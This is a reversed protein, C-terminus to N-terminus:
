HPNIGGVAAKKIAWAVANLELAADYVYQPKSGGVAYNGYLKKQPVGSKYYAPYSLNSSNNAAGTSDGFYFFNKKENYWVISYEPDVDTHGFANYATCVQVSNPPLETLIVSNETTNDEGWYKGGLYGFPGNIIPDNPLQNILYDNDDGISNVEEYQNVATQVNFIDKLLLNTADVQDDAVGYILVGGNNVYKALATVVESNAKAGYAFYLVIDPTNGNNLNNAATSVNATNWKKTFNEIKVKGNPGFNDKNALADTRASADWSWELNGIIGYTMAQLVVPLVTSCTTNGSLSNTEITVPIDKNVTPTGQGTLEVTNTGTTAFVGQAKFMVGYDSKGTIFYSGVASVQINLIIKQNTLATGKVYSDGSLSITGCNVEYVAVSAQVNVLIPNSSCDVAKGNGSLSVTDTQAQAPTGKGQAYITYTGPSLFTGSDTFYYGNTTTGVISYTGKKTVTVTIKLLESATLERGEIYSGEVVVTSCDVDFDAEGMQGCVSQWASDTRSYYNYCDEDINYVLLSNARSKDSNVDIKDREAESMRPIMIGKPITDGQENVINKVDLVTLPNPDETNIGVQAKVLQTNPLFLAAVLSAKEILKIIKKTM